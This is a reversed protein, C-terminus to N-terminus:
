WQAPFFHIRHTPLHFEQAFIIMDDVLWCPIEQAFMLASLRLRLGKLYLKTEFFKYEGRLKGENM